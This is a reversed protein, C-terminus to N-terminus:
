SEYDLFFLIADDRNRQPVFLVGPDLQIDDRVYKRGIMEFVTRSFLSQSLSIVGHKCLNRM